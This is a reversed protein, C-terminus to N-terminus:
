NAAPPTGFNAFLINSFAPVAASYTKEDLTIYDSATYLVKARTPDNPNSMSVDSLGIVYTGPTGFPKTKDPMGIGTPVYFTFTQSGAAKSGMATAVVTERATGTMLSAGWLQGTAAPLNDIEITYPKVVSVTVRYYLKSGDEATVEFVFFDSDIVAEHSYATKTKFTDAYNTEGSAFKVIKIPPTKGNAFTVATISAAIADTDTIIVTGVLESGLVSSPTGLNVVNMGKIRVKMRGLETNNRKDDGNAPNDCSMVSFGIIAAIAIIGLIRFLTKM